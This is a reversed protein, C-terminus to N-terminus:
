RAPDNQAVNGGFSMRWADVHQYLSIPSEGIGEVAARHAFYNVTQWLPIVPLEHHAIEHIEALGSRVDKWNHAEDLRRLAADLYPSDINGALGGPGLILRADVVPEWVALEAYRLDYDIKDALLETASFELLKIPIGARELQLEISQCAVRVLPDAPHALVLEPLDSLETSDEGQDAKKDNESDANSKPKEASQVNAWAVSALIAALRPEFSRPQLKNNYAYRIPDSLALGSPFPGSVVEFGPLKTGGLLVRDVIWQRDIGFCIARRFERKAVLPRELNPILM